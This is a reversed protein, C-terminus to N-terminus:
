TAPFMRRLCNEVLYSVSIGGELEGASGQSRVAQLAAVMDAVLSAELSETSLGQCANVAACIRRADAEDPTMCRGWVWKEPKPTQCAECPGLSLIHGDPSKGETPQGYLTAM